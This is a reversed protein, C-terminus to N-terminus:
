RTAESRIADWRKQWDPTIAGPTTLQDQKIWGAVSNLVRLRSWDGKRSIVEVETGKDLLGLVDSDPGTSPLSRIRVRNDNIHARGGSEKVFKGYVWVDLGRPSKIMIWGNKSGIVKVTIGKDLLSVVPAGADPRGVVPANDATVWATKFPAVM